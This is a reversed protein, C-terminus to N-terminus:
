PTPKGELRERLLKMGRALNVRVSGPTLGTQEAIEPGTLGEVLRLILTDRYAEPLEQIRQLIRVAELRSEASPGHSALSAPIEMVPRRSRLHDVAKGRAISALWGGFAEQDRLATLRNMASIFVDHVLDEADAPPVRALLIGHVMRSYRSFLEGFAARDGGSASRVLTLLRAASAPLAMTPFM